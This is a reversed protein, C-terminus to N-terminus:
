IKTEIQMNFCEYWGGFEKLPVYIYDKFKNHLEKERAFMEDKSKFEETKILKIKYGLSVFFNIRLKLNSSVGIKIFRETDSEFLIYYVMFLKNLINQMHKDINVELLNACINLTGNNVLEISEFAFRPHLEYLIVQFVAPHVFIKCNDRAGNRILAGIYKLTNITGNEAILAKFKQLSINLKDELLYYIREQHVNVDLIQSISNNIKESQLFSTLCVFSDKNIEITM